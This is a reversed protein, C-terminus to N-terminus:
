ESIKLTQAWCSESTGSSSVQPQVEQNRINWSLIKSNNNLNKKEPERLM